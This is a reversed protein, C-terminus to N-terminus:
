QILPSWSPDTADRMTPIIQDHYGSIDISHLTSKGPIKKNRTPETRSYIIVRGNPSWSPSEVLFDETLIREGKGDPRMVGIFFKGAFIKTFAIFDGRPSWAPSAYTGKGYSIRKPSSGDKRMVYIQSSGGKDSTYVIEEGSPSFSPSTNISRDSTIQKTKGNSLDLLHINSNGSNAVSMIAHKGNPSFKPAYSMGPFKGLLRNRGTMLDILFVQPVKKAYSLYIIQQSTPSFRPTLVLFSGDTIYQHNAGDQDMIALKKIRRTVSGTEEVYVIKSNFYPAEGLVSSYIKDAVIHAARRWSEKSITIVSGAVQKENYSDWLKFSVRIKQTETETMDASLLFASDIQRWLPFNPIKESNEIKELFKNKAVEKFFGSRELDGKVVRLFDESLSEDFSNMPHLSIKLPEMNGQTIKIVDNQGAFSNFSLLFLCFFAFIRM